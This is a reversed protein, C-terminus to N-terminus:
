YGGSCSGGYYPPPQCPRRKEYCLRTGKKEKEYDGVFENEESPKSVNQLDESGARLLKIQIRSNFLLEHKAVGTTANFLNM